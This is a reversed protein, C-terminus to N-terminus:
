APHPGGGPDWVIVRVTRAGPLARANIIILSAKPTAVGMWRQQFPTAVPMKGNPAFRYREGVGSPFKTARPTAGRRSGRAPKPGRSRREIPTVKGLFM